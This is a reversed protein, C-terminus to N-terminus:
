LAASHSGSEPHRYPHKSQAPLVRVTRGAGSLMVSAMTRIGVAVVGLMRARVLPVARLARTMSLPTIVGLARTMSLPATVLAFRADGRLRLMGVAM